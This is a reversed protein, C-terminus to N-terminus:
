KAVSKEEKYNRQSVNNIAKKGLILLVFYSLTMAISLFMISVSAGYGLRKIVYFGVLIIMFRSIDWLLQLFQKNLIYLTQSLPLVVIQSIFMITLLQTYYGSNLWEGGFFVSFFKPAILAFLLLPLAFILVLKKITNNYLEILKIPNSKILKAAEGYYVQGLSVAILSIPVAVVRQSLSYWGATETGYLNLLLLTPLQLAASNFLTSFTAFVPFRYYERIVEFLEKKRFNEFLFRNRKLFQTILRSSGILRGMVDGIFLGFSGKMVLPTGIQGLVNVGSQTLKASSIKKYQDERIGWYNLVQFIGAGLLSLSLFIYYYSKSEIDVLSFINFHFLFHLIIIGLSFLFVLMLSLVVLYATKKEDKELPIAKEFCLSSVVLIISLISTYGAFAGFDQPSYQRTLIPSAILLILQSISSGSLLILVNKIYKNQQNLFKYKM